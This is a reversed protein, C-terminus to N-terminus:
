RMLFHMLGQLYVQFSTEPDVAGKLNKMDGWIQIDHILDCAQVKLNASLKLVTELRNEATTLTM